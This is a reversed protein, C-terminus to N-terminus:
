ETTGKEIEHESLQAKLASLFEDSFIIGGGIPLTFVLEFTADRLEISGDRCHTIGPAVFVPGLDDWSCAPLSKDYCGCATLGFGSPSPMPYRGCNDCPSPDGMAM